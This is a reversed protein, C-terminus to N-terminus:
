QDTRGVLHEKFDSTFVRVLKTYGQKRYELPLSMWRDDGTFTQTSIIDLNLAEVADFSHIDKRIKGDIIFLANELDIFPDRLLAVNVAERSSIIAGGSAYGDHSIKLEKTKKPVSIRYNGNIDTETGIITGRGSIYVGMLPKGSEEDTIKGKIIKSTPPNKTTILVAGNKAREGYRKEAEPNKVVDITKINNPDLNELPNEVFVGDIIYLPLQGDSNAQLQEQFYDEPKKFVMDGIKEDTIKAEIKGKPYDPHTFEFETNTTYTPLFIKYYGKEDTIATTGDTAKILVGEIGKNTFADLVRGQIAKTLTNPTNSQQLSNIAKDLANIQRQIAERDKELASESM